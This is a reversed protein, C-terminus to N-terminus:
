AMNNRAASALGILLAWGIFCLASVVVSYLLRKPYRPEEPLGPKLSTQLYVLRREATARALELATASSAYQKEAIRQELELDAFRRMSDSLLREDNSSGRGGTLKAELERIQNAIAVTRNKMARMQPADERVSKLQGEYEQQLKLQDSRLGTLLDTLARGTLRTDLIGDLNRVNELQRRAQTLRSAAREFERQASKINDQWVRRNIDNILLESQELVADAIDKADNPRFARVKFTVIGGPLQIYVDTIWKWYEVLREIPKEPDFREIWDFETSGFRRRLDLKEQLAEVIARSQIYNALVQTDQVASGSPLGTVLGVGDLSVAEGGQVTFKM